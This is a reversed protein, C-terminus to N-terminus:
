STRTAEGVVTGVEAGVAKVTAAKSSFVNSVVVLVGVAPPEMETVDFPKM